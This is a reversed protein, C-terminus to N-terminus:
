SEPLLDRYDACYEKRKCARCHKGMWLADFQATIPEILAPDTTLIGSEFNRRGTSKAGMGAGTLNASGTYAIRGDVIVCKM